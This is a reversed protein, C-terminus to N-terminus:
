KSNREYIVLEPNNVTQTFIFYKNDGIEIKKSGYTIIEFTKWDNLNIVSTARSETFIYRDESILINDVRPLATARKEEVNKTKLNIIKPKYNTRHLFVNENDIFAFNSFTKDFIENSRLLEDGNFNFVCTSGEHVNMRLNIMIKDVCTKICKYLFTDLKNEIEKKWLVSLENDQSFKLLHLVTSSSGKKNATMVIKKNTVFYLQIYEMDKEFQTINIDASTINLYDGNRNMIKIGKRSEPTKVANSIAYTFYKGNPSPVIQDLKMQKEFLINQKNDMIISTKNLNRLNKETRLTIIKGNESVFCDLPLKNLEKSWLLNGDINLYYIKNMTTLVINGTNKAVAFDNIKRTDIPIRKKLSYDPLYEEAFQELTIKEPRLIDRATLNISIILFLGLLVFITKGTFIRSKEFNIM